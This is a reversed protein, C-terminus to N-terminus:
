GKRWQKYEAQVAAAAKAAAEALWGPKRGALDKNIAGRADGTGLHINALELGMAEHMRPELLFAGRKDAEIKRNNPSLRRVVIGDAVRYWPDPSRYRGAAIEGSRIPADPQGRALPWGSTLLAKAERVVPAGQWDAVGMWRPRGLSGKGAVRRATAFDLGKDPMAEALARRFRGPAEEPVRADLKLWFKQREDEPVVVDDRLWQWDRELVIPKPEALGKRDPECTLGM